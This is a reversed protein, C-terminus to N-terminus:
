VFHVGFSCIFIREIQGDIIALAHNDAISTNDAHVYNLDASLQFFRNRAKGRQLSM